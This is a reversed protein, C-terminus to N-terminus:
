KCYATCTLCSCTDKGSEDKACGFNLEGSCLQEICSYNAGGCDITLGNQCDTHCGKPNYLCDVADCKTGCGSPGLFGYCAADCSESASIWNSKMGDCGSADCFCAAADFVVCGSLMVSCLLTFVILIPFGKRLLIELFRDFNM